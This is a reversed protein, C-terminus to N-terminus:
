HESNSSLSLTNFFFLIFNYLDVCIYQIPSINPTSWFTMKKQAGLSMFSTFLFLSSQKLETWLPKIAIVYFCWVCYLLNEWMLYIEYKSLGHLYIGNYKMGNWEM